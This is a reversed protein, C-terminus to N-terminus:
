RKLQAQEKEDHKDKRVMYTWRRASSSRWTGTFIPQRFQDSSQSQNRCFLAVKKASNTVGYVEAAEIM